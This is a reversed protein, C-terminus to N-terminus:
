RWIAKPLVRGPRAAVAREASRHCVIAVAKGSWGDGVDPLGGYSPADGFAFVKGDTALVYYGASNYTPAVAAVTVDVGEGPLSGRFTADGFAFIGGDKAVLFYGHGDASPVMSAIPRNLHFKGASGFFRADGFAFIGGDSAVLWYGRGDETAAIAVIPRNLRTGGTSGYFAADGYAFIGGDSALLWYGRGDPTPAMAVVPARLRLKSASGYWHADGFALVGGNRGALWYGKYDPTAAMATITGAISTGVASGFSPAAGFAHVDGKADAVWYGDDPGYDRQTGTPGAGSVTTSTPNSTSTPVSTSTPASTPTPTSTSTSSSTTPPTVLPEGGIEFWNSPLGFAAAFQSGTLDSSGLTGSVVLDEVRGGLQGLGNRQTVEVAELAGIGPFAGQVESLTLQVAWTHVPNAAVADGLDAVAPFAGGATYGGSSSCYEALAVSGAPGCTSGADCELVQGATASVAADATEGYQDPLGTYMQCSTNDCVEGSAAVVALAYSRAAVAQAELAAEGGTAAWSVPVEPPVVGDVYDELPLVNQTQGDPQAVLDGQYIRSPSGPVCARLESTALGAAVPPESGTQRAPWRSLSKPPRSGRGPVAAVPGQTSSRLAMAARSRSRRPVSRRVEGWSAVLSEGTGASAITNHGDLEVLHVTIDPEPSALAALTTGGYYHALIEKYSWGYLTAYGYAGWQGMGRGHGFGFGSVQVTGSPFGQSPEVKAAMEVGGPLLVCVVVSAALVISASM